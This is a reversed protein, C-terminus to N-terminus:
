DLLMTTPSDEEVAISEGLESSASSGSNATKIRKPSSEVCVPSFRKKKHLMEEPKGDAKQEDDSHPSSPPFYEEWVPPSVPRLLRPNTHQSAPLNVTLTSPENEEVSVDSEDSEDEPASAICNSDGAMETDEDLIDDEDADDEVDKIEEEDEQGSGEGASMEAEEEGVEKPELKCETEREVFENIVLAIKSKAEEQNQKLKEALDPSDLAPDHDNGLFSSISAWDEYQRRKQLEDGIVEFASCAIRQNEDANSSIKCEIVTRLVDHYDPFQKTKNVINELRRFVEPHTHVPFSVRPKRLKYEPLYQSLKQRVQCFRERHRQLRIYASDNDEDFDVEKTELVQIKRDLKRMTQTLRRVHRRDWESLGDLPSSGHLASTGADGSSHGNSVSSGNQASAPALTRRRRLKLEDAVEKIHVYPNQPDGSVDGIKRKLLLSFEVSDTYVPAAKAHIKMIKTLVVADNKNLISRCTDVFKQFLTKKERGTASPVTNDEEDSSITIVDM